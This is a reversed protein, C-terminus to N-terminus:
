KQKGEIVISFSAEQNQAENGVSFDMKYIMQLNVSEKEDFFCGFTIKNENLYEDLKGEALVKSEMCLQLDIFPALGENGKTVFDVQIEYYDGENAKLQITYEEEKGPYFDTLSVTVEQRTEGDLLITADKIKDLSQMIAFAILIGGATALLLSIILIYVTVQKM